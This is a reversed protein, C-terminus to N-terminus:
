CGMVNPTLTNSAEVVEIGWVSGANKKVILKMKSTVVTMTMIVISRNTFANKERQAIFNIKAAVM